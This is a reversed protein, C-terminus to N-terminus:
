DVLAADWFRHEWETVAAQARVQAPTPAGEGLLGALADVWAAFEPSSWNHVFEAYRQGVSRDRVATWADLYAREIGHLVVLAVDYGDHLSALFWGCYGACTLSPEHRSSDLGRGDLQTRFLELEPTLAALGGALVDRSPEDPAALLVGALFRRFQVVFVHDDLLWNDFTAESLTGEATAVVFPHASLAGWRPQAGALLAQARSM